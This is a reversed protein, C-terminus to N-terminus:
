PSLGAAGAAKVMQCRRPSAPRLTVEGSALVRDVALTAGECQETGNHVRPRLVAQAVLDEVGVRGEFLLDGLCASRPEPGRTRRGARPSASCGHRSRRVQPSSAGQGLDQWTPGVIARKDSVLLKQVLYSVPNAIMITTAGAAADIPVSWPAVLLVELHRLKQATVGAIKTTVDRTGARTHESGVLPTLFEAYFGADEGGVHYHTVPPRDDGLFEERFGRSLLRERLTLADTSIGPALAIDTDRTMLPAYDVPQALTHRRFLRHAWGGIIVVRDRYPGLADVLLAFREDDASTIM